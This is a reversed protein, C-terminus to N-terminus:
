KKGGRKKGVKSAEAKAKPPRGMKPQEFNDLDKAPIMWLAGLPTEHLYANPFLGRQCWKRVTIAAVSLQEAVQTVTLETDAM